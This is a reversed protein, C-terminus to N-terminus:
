PEHVGISHQTGPLHSENREWSEALSAKDWKLPPPFQPDSLSPLWGLTACSKLWFKVELDGSVGWHSRGLGLPMKVEYLCSTAKPGACVPLCASM